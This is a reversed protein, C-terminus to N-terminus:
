EEEKFYDDNKVYVERPKSGNAPGIIGQAELMDILRAARSYGLSFKRQIFSTSAKGSEIVFRKVDEYIPDNSTVMQGQADITNLAVFTDEYKPKAQSACHGAIKHVEDDSVFCGQIRIPANEGQPLYLMDGLGLLQEAGQMDIITRSDIASSVAFAIRSPINSKILGTIVDVSPRQTAVVLHIGAARALQTIRQISAEVDKAAVLMLDALEDIIIVIFPMKNLQEQPHTNLYSNYGNINRVGLKSFTDYRKEMLEVIVKLSRSAEEADTIVPGILHPLEHFPTFEVKKPDILLLKVENPKARMLISTIISNVCVSKGSGTAGAILLHPMKNLEAYVANGMLDKGLAFLLKSKDKEPPVNRLVERINVLSKTQNPVEIGVTSKGPIPAEIRIEKAALGMKIDQELNSIKNVRVGSEPRIEFKTVSPGIHTDVLTAEVDFENLISILRKGNENASAANPDRGVRKPQDLMSLSPIRYALGDDFIPTNESQNSAVPAKPAPENIQLDPNTLSVSPKDNETKEGLITENLLDAFDEGNDKEDPDVDILELDNKPESKLPKPRNSKADRKDKIRRPISKLYERLKQKSDASMILLLSFILLLICLIYTGIRDLALSLIAYLLAGFFGYQLTINGAFIASSRAVFDDLVPMGKLEVANACIIVMSVNFVILIAALYRKDLGKLSKRLALVLSLLIIMGFAIIAFNGFLYEFCRAAFTGVVGVKLIGVLAITVVALMILYRFVDNEQWSDMAKSTQKAKKRSRKAKAM